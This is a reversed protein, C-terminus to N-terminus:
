KEKLIMENLGFPSILDLETWYCKEYKKDVFSTDWQIM